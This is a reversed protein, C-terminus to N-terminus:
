ARRSVPDQDRNPTRRFRLQTRDEVPHYGLRQYIENSTPNALDTFLVPIAGDDLIHRTAAATVASGYGRGRLRPPTYVPGVRASGAVVPRRTALSVAEGDVCWLWCGGHALAEDVYQDVGTFDAHAEAGFAWYWDVVLPRDDDTARRPRGDVGVLDILMDLRYLRSAMRHAAPPLGAAVADVASKAGSLGALDPLDALVRALERRPEDAWCGELVVPYSPHSRVAVASGDPAAACWGRADPWGLALRITGLVTGRVPDAALRIDLLDRIEVPDSTVRLTVSRDDRADGVSIPM